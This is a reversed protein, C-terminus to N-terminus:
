RRRRRCSCWRDAPGPRPRPSRHGRCRRPSGSPTGPWSLILTSAGCGPVGMSPSSAPHRLCPLRFASRRYGVHARGQQEGRNTPADDLLEATGHRVLARGAEARGLQTLPQVQVDGRDTEVDVLQEVGPDEVSAEDPVPTDTARALPVDQALDREALARRRLPRGEDDQGSQEGRDERRLLHVSERRLLRAGAPGGLSCRGQPGTPRPVVIGARRTLSTRRVSGGRRALVLQALHAVHGAEQRVPAVRGLNGVLLATLDPDGQAVAGEQCQGGRVGVHDTAHVATQQLAGEISDAFGPRLDAEPRKVPGVVHRASSWSAGGAVLPGVLASTM